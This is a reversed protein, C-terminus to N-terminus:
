GVAFIAAIGIFLAIGSPSVVIDAIFDAILGVNADVIIAVTVISVVLLMKSHIFRPVSSMTSPPDVEAMRQKRVGTQRGYRSIHLKYLCPGGLPM